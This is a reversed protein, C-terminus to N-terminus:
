RAASQSLLKEEPLLRATRALAFYKAAKDAQGQSKLLFGYYLAIVPSELQVPQLRDMAALAEGTRGRLHLSYAYTSAIVPDGAHTTYLEDALRHARLLDQGLLLSTAALNNKAEVDGDNLAALAAYTKNLGKTNGSAAYFEILEAWAWRESPFHTTLACLLQEREQPWGWNTALALLAKLPGFRNGAARMALRWHGGAAFGRNQGSAARSLWALRLYDLESWEASDLFQELGAWNECAALCDVQAFRAGVEAQYVPPLNTLWQRCADVLGEQLMWASLSYIQWGNTIVSEQAEAVIDKFNPQGLRKLIRAHMLRDELKAGELGILRQSLQRTAELEGREFYDGVLWQLATSALAPSESLESLTERAWAATAQNTSRLRLVSLNLQHLANTPELRLAEAFQYEAVASDGRKLALEASLLHYTVNQRATASIEELCSAALSYPPPDLRLAMAAFDLQHEITPSIEVLRKQWDLAQAAGALIALRAMVQCAEANSSNLMLAVRANLSAGSFDSADLAARARLVARNERYHRYAARGWLLWGVGIVLALSISLGIKCKSRLPQGNMNIM